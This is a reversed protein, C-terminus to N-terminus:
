LCFFGQVFSVMYTPPSLMWFGSYAQQMSKSSLLIIFQLSLYGGYLQVFYIFYFVSFAFKSFHQMIKRYM